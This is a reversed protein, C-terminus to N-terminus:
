TKRQGGPARERHSSEPMDELAGGTEERGSVQRCARSPLARRVELVVQRDSWTSCRVGRPDLLLRVNRSLTATPQQPNPPTTSPQMSAPCITEM